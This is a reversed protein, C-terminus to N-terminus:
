TQKDKPHSVGPPLQLRDRGILFKGVKYENRADAAGVYTIGLCNNCADCFIEKITYRGTTYVAVQSETALKINHAAGTLYGPGTMAHYNSSLIEPGKFIAQCCTGCSYSPEEDKKPPVEAKMESSDGTGPSSEKEAAKPVPLPEESIVSGSAAAGPALTPVEGASPCPQQPRAQPPPSPQALPPKPVAQGQIMSESPGLQVEQKIMQLQVDQWAMEPLLVEDDDDGDNFLALGQDDSDTSLPQSLVESDGSGGTSGDVSPADEVRSEKRLAGETKSASGHGTTAVMDWESEWDEGDRESQPTSPLLEAQKVEMAKEASGSSEEFNASLKRLIGFM